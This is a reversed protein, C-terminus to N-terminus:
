RDAASAAGTAGDDVSEPEHSIVPLPPNFQREALLCVIALVVLAASVLPVARVGVTATLGAGLGSGGAIGVNFTSSYLAMGMDTSGPTVLMVRHGLIPPVASFGFGFLALAVVAPVPHGGILWLVALAVAVVTMATVLSGWAHRDLFAGVVVAGVVGAIGQVALLWPMDQQRFGAVDQLLQTGFTILGFAGTVVLATAVLQFALRRASPFPARSAGGESPAVTPFLVIVIVFIVVSLGAAAWFAARWSVQEGLWTGAPIGLVPALSNGIALRAMVRGRVRPPFLGTTAPIVAVWFVAQALATVLRAVMVTTYDDALGTWLTALAAVGVTASLAWRRPVHKVAHALPVSAVLVVLAYVTVLLGIESTTRGLDPAMLTLLGGPLGEVLVFLFTSVAMAVLIITARREDVVPARSAPSVSM